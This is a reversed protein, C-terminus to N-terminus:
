IEANSVSEISIAHFTKQVFLCVVVVFLIAAVSIERRNRKKQGDVRIQVRSNIPVDEFHGSKVDVPSFLKQCVMYIKLEKIKVCRTNTTNKVCRTFELETLKICGTPLKDTEM